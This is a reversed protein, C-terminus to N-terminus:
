YESPTMLVTHEGDDVLYFKWTGESCDTFELKASWLRKGCTNDNEDYDDRVEISGRGKKSKLLVVGFSDKRPIADPVPGRKGYVGLAIADIFWYANAKDAFFEVGDTWLLRRNLPHRHWRETGHFQDLDQPTITM